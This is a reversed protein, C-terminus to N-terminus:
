QSLSHGDAELGQNTPKSYWHIPARFRLNNIIRTKRKLLAYMKGVTLYAWSAKEHMGSLLHHRIGMVIM